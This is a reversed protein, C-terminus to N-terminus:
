PADPTIGGFSPQPSTIYSVGLIERAQNLRAERSEQKRVGAHPQSAHAALPFSERYQLVIGFSEPPQSHPEAQHSSERRDLRSGRAPRWYRHHAPSSEWCECELYPGCRRSPLHCAVQHKPKCNRRPEESSRDW